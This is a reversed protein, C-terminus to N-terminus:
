EIYWEGNDWSQISQKAEFSIHPIDQKALKKLVTLCKDPNYRMSYVATLKSVCVEDDNILNLLAERGEDGVEKLNKFATNMRKIQANGKKWDGEKTFTFQKMAADKFANVSEIIEDAM